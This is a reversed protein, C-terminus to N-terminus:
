HEKPKQRQGPAGDGRERLRRVARELAALAEKDGRAQRLKKLAAEAEDLPEGAVEGSVRVSDRARLWLVKGSAADWLRVAGDNGDTALVRGDPSFADGPVVDGKGAPAAEARSRLNKVEQELEQVRGRLAQQGKRLADVELRLADLEDRVSQAAPAHPTQASATRYTLGVAGASVSVALLFVGASVKLKALFM